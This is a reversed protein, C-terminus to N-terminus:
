TPGRRRLVARAPAAEAGTLRLPLCLLEYEGPSAHRLDIGELIVVGAELLVRHADPADRYRQISLYDIGILQIGRQVIWRAGDASLATYDPEFAPRTWLEGNGTRLLVRRVDTPLALSELCKPGVSGEIPVDAVIAAGVLRDLPLADVTAGDALFHAPADVHTGTHVDLRMESVNAQAGDDISSLLSRNYGPSGPWVPLDGGLPVSIDIFEDM